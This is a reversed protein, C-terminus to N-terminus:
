RCLPKLPASPVSWIQRSCNCTPDPFSELSIRVIAQYLEDREREGEEAPQSWSERWKAALAELPLGRGWTEAVSVFGPPSDRFQLAPVTELTTIEVVPGTELDRCGPAALVLLLVAGLRPAVESFSISRVAIFLSGGDPASFSSELLSEPLGKGM